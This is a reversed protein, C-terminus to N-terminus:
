DRKRKKVRKEKGGGQVVVPPPGGAPSKQESKTKEDRAVNLVQVYCGDDEEPVYASFWQDHDYDESPHAYHVVSCASTGAQEVM